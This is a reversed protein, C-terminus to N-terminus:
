RAKQKRTKQKRAKQKRARRSQKRGTDAYEEAKDRYKEGSIAEQEKDIAEFYEKLKTDPESKLELMPMIKVETQEAEPESKLELMPVVKVETEKPEAESEAGVFERMIDPEKCQPAAVTSTTVLRPEEAISPSTNDTDKNEPKMETWTPAITETEIETATEMRTRGRFVGKKWLLVVATAAVPVVISGLLVTNTTFETRPPTPSAAIFKDAAPVPNSASPSSVSPSELPTNAEQPAPESPPTVPEPIVIKGTKISIVLSHDSEVGEKDVATVKYYYRTTASLEADSYTTGSVLSDNILDFPDDPSSSRYINYGAAGHVPDWSFTVNNASTSVVNIESPPSLPTSDTPTPASASTSDSENYSSTLSTFSGLILLPVGSGKSYWLSVQSSGWDTLNLRLPLSDGNIATGTADHLRITFTALGYGDIPSAQATFSSCSLYIIDGEQKKPVADFVEMSCTKSAGLLGGLKFLELEMNTYRGSEPDEDMDTAPSPQYWRVNVTDNVNISGRRLQEDVHIITARGQFVIFTEGHATLTTALVLIVSISVVSISVAVLAAIQANAM